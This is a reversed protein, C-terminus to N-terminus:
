PTSRTRMVSLMTFSRSFSRKPSSSPIKQLAARITPIVLRVAEMVAEDPFLEKM